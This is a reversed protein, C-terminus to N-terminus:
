RGVLFAFFQLDHHSLPVQQLGRPTVRWPGAQMACGIAVSEREELTYGSADEDLGYCHGFWDDGVQVSGPVSFRSM